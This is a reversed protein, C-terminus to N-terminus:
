TVKVKFIKVISKYANVKFRVQQSKVKIYVHIVKVKFRKLVDSQGQSILSIKIKSIKIKIRQMNSQGQAKTYGQGKQVYTNVWSSQFVTRYLPISVVDAQADSYKM